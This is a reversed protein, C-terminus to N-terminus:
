VLSCVHGWRSHTMGRGRSLASGSGADYGSICLFGGREWDGGGGERQLGNHGVHPLYNLLWRSNKRSGEEGKWNRQRGESRGREV